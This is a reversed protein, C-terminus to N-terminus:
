GKLIVMIEPTDRTEITIKVQNEPFFCPAINNYFTFINRNRLPLERGQELILSIGKVIPLLHQIISGFCNVALNFSFIMPDRFGTVRNRRGAHPDGSGSESHGVPM